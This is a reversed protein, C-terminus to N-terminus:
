KGIAKPYPFSAIASSKARSRGHVPSGLQLNNNQAQLKYLTCTPDAAQGKHRQAIYETGKVMRQQWSAKVKQAQQWAAAREKHKKGSEHAKVNQLRSTKCLPVVQGGSWWGQALAIPLSIGYVAM